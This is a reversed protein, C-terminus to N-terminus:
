FGNKDLFEYTIEEKQNTFKQIYKGIIDYEINVIDGIKLNKLNTSELTKPILCVSFDDKNTNAVTLSVGNITISGKDVILQTPALFKIRKSFGDDKISIIESILDIHGSVLHGDLRSGLKLARELNILDGKALNKLNTKNLTENMIEVAFLDGSIEVVSLCAGNVAISDGLKTDFFPARFYLKAGELDLEFKEVQSVKEVIGTFM